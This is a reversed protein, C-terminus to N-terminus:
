SVLPEVTILDRYRDFDAVNHTVLRRVGWTCMVAVVNADHVKKGAVQRESVLRVLAGVTADTETLLRARSHIRAVNEVADALAPLAGDPGPRTLAVLCERLIQPSTCLEEGVREATQLRERARAHWPSDANIAYVFVNTDVFLSEDRNAM